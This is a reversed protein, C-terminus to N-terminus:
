RRRGSPHEFEPHVDGHAEPGDMSGCGHGEEDRVHGTACQDAEGMDRESAAFSVTARRQAASFSAVVLLRRGHQGEVAPRLLLRHAGLGDLHQPGVRRLRPMTGASPPPHQRRHGLAPLGDAQQLQVELVFRGRLRTASIACTAYRSANTTIALRRCVSRNSHPWRLREKLRDASIWCRSTGPGRVHSAAANVSEPQSSGAALM